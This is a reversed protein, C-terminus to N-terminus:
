CQYLYKLASPYLPSYFFTSLLVFCPYIQLQNMIKETDDAQYSSVFLLSNKGASEAIKSVFIVVIRKDGQELSQLIQLYYLELTSLGNQGEILEETLIRLM